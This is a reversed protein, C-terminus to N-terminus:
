LQNVKDQSKVDQIKTKHKLHALNLQSNPQKDITYLYKEKFM